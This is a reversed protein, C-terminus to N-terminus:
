KVMSAQWHLYPLCNESKCWDSFSHPSVSFLASRDPTGALQAVVQRGFDLPHREERTIPHVLRSGDPLIALLYESDGVVEQLQSRSAKGVAKSLTTFAFGQAQAAQQFAQLACAM